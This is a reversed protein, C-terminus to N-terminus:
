KIGIYKGALVICHPNVQFRYLIGFLKKVSSYIEFMEKAIINVYVYTALFMKTKFFHNPRMIYVVIDGAM